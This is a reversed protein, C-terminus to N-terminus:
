AQRHSDTENLMQTVVGAGDAKRYIKTNKLLNWIRFGSHCSEQGGASGSLTTGDGCKIEMMGEGCINKWTIWSSLLGDIPQGSTLPEGGSSLALEMPKGMFKTKLKLLNM